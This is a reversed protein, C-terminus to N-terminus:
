LWAQLYTSDFVRGRKLLQEDPAVADKVIWDYDYLFGQEWNSKFVIILVNAELDELPRIQSISVGCAYPFLYGAHTDGYVRIRHSIAPFNSATELEGRSYAGLWNLVFCTEVLSILVIVTVVAVVRLKGYKGKRLWAAATFGAGLALLPGLYHLSKTLLVFGPLTHGWFFAFIVMTVAATAYSKLPRVKLGRALGIINFLALGAAGFIAAALLTETLINLPSPQALIYIGGTQGLIIIPFAALVLWPTKSSSIGKDKYLSAWLLIFCAILLSLDTVNFVPHFPGIALYNLLNWSIFMASFVATMIFVNRTHIYPQGRKLKDSLLYATLAWFFLFIVLAAFHHGLVLGTSVLTGLVIWAKSTRHKLALTVILLMLMTLYYTATERMVAGSFAVYPYIPNFTLFLSAFASAGLSLNLRRCVTYISLSALGTLLPIVQSALLNDLGGILMVSALLLNVLPWREGYSRLYCHGTTAIDRALGLTPWTDGIFPAGNFMFPLLPVLFVPVFVCFLCCVRLKEMRNAAIIKSSDLTPTHKIEYENQAKIRKRFHEYKRPLATSTLVITIISISTFTSDLCIGWPTYNLGLGVVLILTLSLGISLTFRELPTLGERKPYLAEILSCGPLYLVLTLGLIYRIYTFPPNRPIVYVVIATLVVTANLLWFWLSYHSKVYRWLTDPPDPDALMLKEEKWLKCISKAVEHNPVALENSVQNLLSEINLSQTSKANKIIQKEIQEEM